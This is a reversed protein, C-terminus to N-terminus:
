SSKSLLSLIGTLKNDVTYIAHPPVAITTFPAEIIAPGNIVNGPLLKGWDYIISTQFGNPIWYVSRSGTEASQPDSGSMPYETLNPKDRPVTAQLVFNDIEVGNQPTTSIPSYVENYEKEFASAITSIDQISTLQSLPSTVRTVDLQGGYKMDLYLEFSLQNKDYGEGNFDHIALEQLDLVIQNFEDFNEYPGFDGPRLLPIHLSQEYIHKPDMVSSGFASFVSSYPFVIITNVGAHKAFGEAHTPGAGGIAFLVFNQPDYGRLATEKYITSGMEADTISRILSAAEVVDIELPDAVQRQIAREAHRMSLPKEGGYFGSPNIYGLIIDADTVTPERGGQNYCAPGPNSGASEPGVEIKNDLDVRVRAISGGGAGISQSKLMTSHVRWRDVIPELNYTRSSGGAILSLDFSTGGMDAAIVNEYGYISGLYSGGILASAPGGKFTDMASTRFIEATGGTNHIMQLPRVYGRQRLEDGIGYLEDIMSQHLYASLMTTITREYEGRKRSIESSLFVPASGLYADPYEDSIIERVKQEHLSNRHSWALCVAFGRAGQEVLYRIKDRLDAEDIPRLIEGKFNIRERVGVIMDQSVIPDPKDSRSVNRQERVTMGDTWQSGRGIAVIDELGNTVLVGLKSGSRSILKNLAFTTSYRIATANAILDNADVNLDRSASAISNLFGLSLDHSTTEAKGTAVDGNSRIFCDTFTGGIDVDITTNIKKIM